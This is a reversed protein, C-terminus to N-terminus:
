SVSGKLAALITEENLCGVTKGEWEITGRTYNSSSKELTSPPADLKDPDYRWTGHVKNVPFVWISAGHEVVLMRGDAFPKGDKAEVPIGLLSHLAVCLQIEGRINVLGQLLKGRTGPVRHLVRMEAVERFIHTPLALTEAGLTFIVVSETASKLSEKERALLVSWERRYDAPVERDFLGRGADGFIRCNRCHTVHALEPCTGDGSIGIHNWCDAPAGLPRVPASQTGATTTTDSM